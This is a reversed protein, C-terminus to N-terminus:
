KKVTTQPITTRDFIGSSILVLALSLSNTTPSSVKATRPAVLKIRPVFSSHSLLEHRDFDARPAKIYIGLHNEVIKVVLTVSLM